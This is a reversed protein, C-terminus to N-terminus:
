EESLSEQLGNSFLTANSARDGLMNKEEAMALSLSWWIVHSYQACEFWTLGFVLYAITIAEIGRFPSLITQWCYFGLLLAYAGM